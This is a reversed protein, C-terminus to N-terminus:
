RGLSALEVPEEEHGPVDAMTMASENLHRIHSPLERLKTGCHQCVCADVPIEALCAMCEATRLSKGPHSWIAERGLYEAALKMEPSIQRAAHEDKSAALRSGERFFHEFYAQQQDKMQEIEALTPVTGVIEMIGPKADSDLNVLNGTWKTILYNVIEECSVPTIDGVYTNSAASKLEDKSHQFSDYIEIVCAQKPTARNKPVPELQYRTTCGNKRYQSPGHNMIEPQIKGPYISAIRRVDPTFKGM